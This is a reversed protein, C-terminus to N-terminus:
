QGPQATAAAAAMDSLVKLGRTRFTELLQIDQATAATQNALEGYMVSLVRFFAMHFAPQPLLPLFDTWVSGTRVHHSRKHLLRLFSELRHPTGAWFGAEAGTGYQQKWHNVSAIIGRLGNIRVADMTKTLIDWIWWKMRARLNCLTPVVRTFWFFVTSAYTARKAVTLCLPKLHVVSLRDEDGENMVFRLELIQTMRTVATDSAEGYVSILPRILNIIAVSSMKYLPVSESLSRLETEFSAGKAASIENSRKQDSKFLGTFLPRCNPCATGVPWLTQRLRTRVIQPTIAHWRPSLVELILVAGEVMSCSDGILDTYAAPEYDNAERLTQRITKCTLGLCYWSMASCKNGILRLMDPVAVLFCDVGGVVPTATLRPRKAPVALGDNAVLDEARRKRQSRTVRVTAM